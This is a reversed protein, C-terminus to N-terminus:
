FQAGPEGEPRVRSCDCLGAVATGGLERRFTHSKLKHWSVKSRLLARGAKGDGDIGRARSAAQTCIPLAAELHRMLAQADAVEFPRGMLWGRESAVKSLCGLHWM